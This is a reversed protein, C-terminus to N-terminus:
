DKGWINVGEYYPREEIWEVGIDKGANLVLAIGDDLIGKELAENSIGKCANVCAIIRKANAEREEESPYRISHTTTYCEAILTGKENRIRVVGKGLTWPEESHKM